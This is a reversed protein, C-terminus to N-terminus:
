PSEPWTILIPFSYQEPVDRLAQRYTIMEASMDVDSMATWDTEALKGDRRKRVAAEQDAVVKAKYAAEHEAKTIIVGGEETTDSFRDIVSWAEVTNGKADTAVGNGVVSQLDTCDPKPAALVATLGLDTLTTATWVRPLSIHKNASRWEGQTKIEGTDLKIYTSM